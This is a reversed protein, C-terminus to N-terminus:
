RTAADLRVAAAGPEPIAADARCVGPIWVPEGDCMVVPWSSRAGRPIREEMMLKSVSRHGVGRLPVMRSGQAPLRVELTGPVIWTTWGGRDLHEPAREPRWSLDFGGFSQVGADGALPRPEPLAVIRRLVLREFAVEAIVGEGLELSRGSAAQRAFAIVRQAQAPGLMIGARRAGARLLRASLQSDYDALPARAVDVLGARVQADIGSFLDLAADWAVLEAEAHRAVSLLHEEAAEGFRDRLLPLLSTRVWSRNHRLDANAPDAFPELGCAAVHAALEARRFPLLPRVLGDAGREPIGALGAPASGRLLRLLVTEVQDDSHHATVLFRGGRGAQVRRFFAYRAERAITEGADAGLAFREVVSDLAYREAAVRSVMAAVKASEPHIGHDAHVVLLELGRAPAIGAILDLLALSDAGGSVALLALGPGALLGAQDLHERFRQTLM